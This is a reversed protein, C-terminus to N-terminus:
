IPEVKRLIETRSRPTTVNVQAKQPMGAQYAKEKSRSGRDKKSFSWLVREFRERASLSRIKKPSLRIGWEPFGQQYFKGLQASGGRTFYQLVQLSRFETAKLEPTGRRFEKYWLLNGPSGKKREKCKKEKKLILNVKQAGREFREKVLQKKNGCLSSDFRV